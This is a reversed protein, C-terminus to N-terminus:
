PFSERSKGSAMFPGGIALRWQNLGAHSIKVSLDIYGRTIQLM